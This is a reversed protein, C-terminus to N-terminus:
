GRAHLTRFVVFTSCSNRPNICLIRSTPAAASSADQPPPLLELEGEGSGVADMLAEGVVTL